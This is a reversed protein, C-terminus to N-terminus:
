ATAQNTGAKLWADFEAVPILWTGTGTPKTAPITGNKCLAWVYKPTKRLIDAAEAITYYRTATTDPM